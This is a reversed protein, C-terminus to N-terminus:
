DYYLVGETLTGSVLEFYTGLPADVIDPYLIHSDGSVTPLNQRSVLEARLRFVITGGRVSWGRLNQVGAHNTGSAIDVANVAM